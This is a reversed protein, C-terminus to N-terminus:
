GSQRESHSSDISKHHVKERVVLDKVEREELAQFELLDNIERGIIGGGGEEIKHFVLGDLQNMKPQVIIAPRVIGPVGDRLLHDDRGQFDHAVGIVIREVHHAIKPPM